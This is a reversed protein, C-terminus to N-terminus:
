KENFVETIFVFEKHGVLNTKGANFHQFPKEFVKTTGVLNLTDIIEKHSIKNKSSNSKPNYTNNYTVVIYKTNLNLILEEFVQPAAIRSYDSMNETPPKLAVGELKPKDWKTLTELVHYFRSYQRSNYPPDIFAIDSKINKVLENADERYIEIHKDKINKPKILNFEFRDEINNIKRYAEYHGVTNSIKDASYILSAILISYERNNLDDAQSILERIEGILYADNFSFFKDGFNESFYNNVKQNIKIDRFLLKYKNLKKNSYKEKGFFANYIEFNSFLFDNVIFKDFHTLMKDTVIGTGAFVDFFVEGTTHELILKDLWGLLKRKSGIYRRNEISYVGLTFKRNDMIKNELTQLEKVIVNREKELHNAVADVYEITWKKLPRKNLNRVTTEPIQSEFHLKNLNSNNEKLYRELLNM